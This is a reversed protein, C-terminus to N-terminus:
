YVTKTKSKLLFHSGAEHTAAVAPAAVPAVAPAAVPAVAPAAVPAVASASHVVSVAPQQRVEVTKYYTGPSALRSLFDGLSTAARGLANALSVGASDLAALFQSNGSHTKFVTVESSPPPAVVTKTAVPISTDLRSSAVAEHNFSFTKHPVSIVPVSVIKTAEHFVGPAAMTVGVCVVLVWVASSM